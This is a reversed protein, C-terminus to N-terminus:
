ERQTQGLYLEATYGFPELIAGLALFFCSQNGPRSALRGLHDKVDLIWPFGNVSVQGQRFVRGIAYGPVRIFSYLGFPSATERGLLLEATHFHATEEVGLEAESLDSWGCAGYPTAM